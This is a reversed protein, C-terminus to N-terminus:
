FITLKVVTNIMPRSYTVENQFPQMGVWESSKLLLLLLGNVTGSPHTMKSLAKEM